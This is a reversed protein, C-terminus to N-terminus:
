GDHGAAKEVGDSAIRGEEEEAAEAADRSRNPRARVLAAAEEPPEDNENETPLEHQSGDCQRRRRIAFHEKRQM